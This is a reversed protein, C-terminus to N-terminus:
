CTRQLIVLPSSSLKLGFTKTKIIPVLLEELSEASAMVAPIEFITRVM